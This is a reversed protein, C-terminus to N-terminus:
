VDELGSYKLETIALGFSKMPPSFYFKAALCLSLGRDVLFHQGPMVEVWEDQATRDRVYPVVHDRFVKMATRHKFFERPRLVFSFNVLGEKKHFAADLTLMMMPGQMVYYREEYFGDPLPGGLDLQSVVDNVRTLTYPMAQKLLDPTRLNRFRELAISFLGMSLSLTSWENM